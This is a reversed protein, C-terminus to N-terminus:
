YTGYHTRVDVVVGEPTVIFDALEPQPPANHFLVLLVLVALAWVMFIGLMGIVM